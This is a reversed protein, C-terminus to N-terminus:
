YTGAPLSWEFDGSKEVSLTKTKGDELRLLHPWINWGLATKYESREVGNNIWRVRGFAITGAETGIAPSEAQGMPPATGACSIALPILSILFVLRTVVTLRKYRKGIPSASEPHSGPDSCPALGGGRSCEDRGTSADSLRACM